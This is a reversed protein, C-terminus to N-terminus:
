CWHAGAPFAIFYKLISRLSIFGHYIKCHRHSLRVSNEAM